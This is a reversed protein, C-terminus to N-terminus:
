RGALADDMAKQVTREIENRSDDLSPVLFPHKREEIPGYVNPDSRNTRGGTRGKRNSRSSRSFAGGAVGTKGYPTGVRVELNLGTGQVDSTGIAAQLRGTAVSYGAKGIYPNDPSHVTRQAQAQVALGSRTLAPRLKAAVGAVGIRKKLEPIGRITVSLGDAM